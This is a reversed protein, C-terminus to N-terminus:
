ATPQLSCPAHPAAPSGLTPSCPSRYLLCHSSPPQLNCTSSEGPFAREGRRREASLRLRLGASGSDSAALKSTVEVAALQSSRTACLCKVYSAQARVTCLTTGRARPGCAVSRVHQTQASSTMRRSRVCIGVCTICPEASREPVCEDIVM